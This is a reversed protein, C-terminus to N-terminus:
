VSVMWMGDYSRCRYFLAASPPGRSDEVAFHFLKTVTSNAENHFSHAVWLLFKSLQPFYFLTGRDRQHSHQIFFFVFLHPLSLLLQRFLLTSFSLFMSTISIVQQTQLAVLLISDVGVCMSVGRGSLCFPFMLREFLRLFNECLFQM